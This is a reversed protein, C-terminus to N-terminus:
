SDGAGADGRACAYAVGIAKCERGVWGRWRAAVGM